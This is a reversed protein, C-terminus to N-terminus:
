TGPYRGARRQGEPCAAGLTLRVVRRKSHDLAAGSFDDFFTTRYTGPQDAPLM